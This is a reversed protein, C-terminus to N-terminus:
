PAIGTLPQPNAKVHKRLQGLTQYSHNPYEFGPILVALAMRLMEDDDYVEALKTSDPGCDRLYHEARLINM